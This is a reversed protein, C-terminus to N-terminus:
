LTRNARKNLVVKLRKAKVGWMTVIMKWLKEDVFIKLGSLIVITVTNQIKAVKIKFSNVGKHTPIEIWICTTSLLVFATKKYTFM